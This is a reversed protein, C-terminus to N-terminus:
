DISCMWATSIVGFIVGIPLIFRFFVWVFIASLAGMIFGIM